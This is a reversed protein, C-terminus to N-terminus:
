ARLKRSRLIENNNKRVIHHNPTIFENFNIYANEINEYHDDVNEKEDRNKTVTYYLDYFNNNMSKVQPKTQQFKMLLLVEHHIKIIIEQANKSFIDQEFQFNRISMEDYYISINRYFKLKTKCKSSQLKIIMDETSNYTTNVMNM